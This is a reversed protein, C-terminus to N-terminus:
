LLYKKFIKKTKDKSLLMSGNRPLYFRPYNSNENPNVMANLLSYNKKESSRKFRFNFLTNEKRTEGESSDNENEENLESESLKKLRIKDILNLYEKKKDMSLSQRMSLLNNRYKNYSNQLKEFNKEKKIKSLIQENIEKMTGKNLLTLKMRQMFDSDINSINQINTNLNCLQKYLLKEKIIKDKGMLNPLTDLNKEQKNKNILESNIKEKPIKNQYEKIFTNDTSKIIKTGKNELNQIQNIKIKENKGSFQKLNLLNLIFSKAKKNLKKKKKKKMSLKKNLSLKFKKIFNTANVDKNDKNDNNLKFLNLKPTFSSINNKSVSNTRKRQAEIINDSSESNNINDTNNEESKKYSLLKESLFNKGLLLNISKRRKRDDLPELAKFPNIENEEKEKQLYKKDGIPSLNNQNMYIKMLKKIELKNNSLEKYKARLKSFENLKGKIEEQNRKFAIIKNKNENIKNELFIDELDFKPSLYSYSFKIENNINPTLFGKEDFNDESSSLESKKTLVKIGKPSSYLSSLNLGDFDNISFNTSSLLTNSTQSSISKNLAYFPKMLHKRKYDELLNKQFLENNRNNKTNEIINHNLEQKMLLYEKEDIVNKEKYTKYTITKIDKEYKIKNKYWTYIENIKRTRTESDKIYCVEILYKELLKYVLNKHSSLNLNKSNKSLNLKLNKEYKYIALEELMNDLNSNIEEYNLKILTPSIFKDKINKIFEFNNLIQDNENIENIEDIPNQSESLM